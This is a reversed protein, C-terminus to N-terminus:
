QQVNKSGVARPSTEVSVLSFFVLFFSFVFYGRFIADSFSLFFPVSFLLSALPGAPGDTPLYTPRDLYAFFVRPSWRGAVARLFRRVFRCILKLLLLM